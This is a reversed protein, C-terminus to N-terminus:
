LNELFKKAKQEMESIASNFGAEVMLVRPYNSTHILTKELKKDVKVAEIAETAIQRLSQYLFNEIKEAGDQEDYFVGRLFRIPKEHNNCFEKEFEEIIKETLTM